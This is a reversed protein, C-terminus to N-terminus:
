ADPTEGSPDPTSGPKGRLRPRSASRPAPIQGSRYNRYHREAEAVLVPVISVFDELSNVGRAGRRSADTSLAGAEMLIERVQGALEQVRTDDPQDLILLPLVWRPLSRVASALASRGNDDAIFWPDILIIGPGRTRPDPVTKIDGVAVTLDLQEIVQKAYEALPLEQQPFPRWDISSQGYGRPDRDVSVSQVTPAATEVAFVSHQRESIFPSTLDDIDPVESPEIPSEEALVVIRKALVNVVARYSDRYSRIKLLARLGNETYGPMDSGLALADRLGPPDQARPLPAWLVPVFRVRPDALGALEARRHFCAWERGPRSKAIYGVSYLPVFTQAGGLARSLSVKWDSGVSIEQDYFGSVIGSRLSAHRRVAATLDNFLAGVLRDPNEEPYGPLPNSHVYSLVFYPSYIESM